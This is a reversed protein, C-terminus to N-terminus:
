TALTKWEAYWIPVYRQNSPLIRTAFSEELGTDEYRSSTATMRELEYHELCCSLTWRASILKWPTKRLSNRYLLDKVPMSPFVHSHSLTRLSASFNFSLIRPLHLSYKLSRKFDCLPLRPCHRGLNKQAGWFKNHGGIKKFMYYFCFDQGRLFINKM